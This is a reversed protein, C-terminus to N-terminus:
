TDRILYFKAFARFRSILTVVDTQENPLARRARLTNSVAILFWEVRMTFMFIVPSTSVVISCQSMDNGIAPVSSEVFHPSAQASAPELYELATLAPEILKL